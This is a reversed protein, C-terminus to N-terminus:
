QSDSYRCDRHSLRPTLNAPSRQKSQTTFPGMGVSLAGVLARISSPSRSKKSQAPCGHFVRFRPSRLRSGCMSGCPTARGAAGQRILSYRRGLTDAFRKWAAASAMFGHLLLLPPGAGGSQYHRVAGDVSDYAPALQVAATRNASPECASTLLLGTAFCFALCRRTTM